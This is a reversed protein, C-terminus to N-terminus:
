VLILLSLFVNIDIIFGKINFDKQINENPLDFYMYM